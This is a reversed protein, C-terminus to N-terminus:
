RLGPGVVYETSTVYSQLHAALKSEETVRIGASDEVFEAGCLTFYRLYDNFIRQERLAAFPYGFLREFRGFDVGSWTLLALRLERAVIGINAPTYREACEVTLPDDRYRHFTQHSNSVSHHGLTSGAGSGFGAFDGALDFYYSEGRFRYRDGYSFHGLAYEVYGAEALMQQCLEFSELLHRYDLGPRNGRGIQRAMVTRPDARYVYVTVHTPEQEICTRVSYRLDDLTQGPMSSILDLNFNDIGGRRIARAVAVAQEASHARGARRLESEVFSQVGVSIRDVGNRRLAVVKEETLTEPSSEFSHEEVAGLDFGDHLAGIVEVLEAASLRSPTGGGWYVLRPRYGLETLRPGYGRIQTTLARVYRGRVDAGGLLDAVDLDAVFDCFHCKSSCFPVHLYILLDRPGSAPLEAGVLAFLEDPSVDRRVPGPDAALTEAGARVNGRPM